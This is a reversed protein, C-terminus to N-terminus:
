KKNLFGLLKALAYVIQEDNTLLDFLATKCDHKVTLGKFISEMIQMQNSANQATNKGTSGGAAERDTSFAHGKRQARENELFSYEGMKDDTHQLIMQSKQLKETILSRMNSNRDEFKLESGLGQQENHKLKSANGKAIASAGALGLSLPSNKHKYHEVEEKVQIIENTLQKTIETLRSVSTQFMEQEAELRSIREKLIANENKNDELDSKTQQQDNLIQNCICQKDNSLTRYCKTEPEKTTTETKTTCTNQIMPQGAGELSDESSSLKETMKNPLKTRNLPIFNFNQHCLSRHHFNERKCFFCTKKTLCEFARHGRKLCVFCCGLRKLFQM